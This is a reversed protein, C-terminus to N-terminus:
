KAAGSIQEEFALEDEVRVSSEFFAISAFNQFDTLTQKRIRLYM